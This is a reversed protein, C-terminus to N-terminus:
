ERGSILESMERAIIRSHDTDGIDVGFHYLLVMEAYFRLSLKHKAMFAALWFLVVLEDKQRKAEASIFSGLPDATKRGQKLANETRRPLHGNWAKV